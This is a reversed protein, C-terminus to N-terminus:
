TVFMGDYSDPGGGPIWLRLWANWPSKLWELPVMGQMAAAAGQMGAGGAGSDHALQRMQALQAQMARLTQYAPMMLSAPERLPGDPQGDGSVVVREPDLLMNAAVGYQWQAVSLWYDLPDSAIREIHRRAQDYTASTMAATDDLSQRIFSELSDDDIAPYLGLYEQQSPLAAGGGPNYVAIRRSGQRGDFFGLEWPMWKSEPANSGVYFILCSCKRMVRRLYEATEPTVRSRDLTPSDLWDVYVSFGLESEIRRKFAAVADRDVYRHSLFVDYHRRSPVAEDLSSLDPSEGGPARVIALEVTSPESPPPEAAGSRAAAPARPASRVIRLHRERPKATTKTSQTM